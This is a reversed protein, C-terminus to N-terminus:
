KLKRLFQFTDEFNKVVVDIISEAQRPTIITRIPSVTKNGADDVSTIRIQYLSGPKFNTIIITHNQVFTDTTAVKNALIGEKVSGEEYEVISTAPEDTRWSIVMQVRDTRGPVLAGDIKLNSIQPPATDKSTKALIPKGAEISSGAESIGFVKIEYSTDPMLNEIKVNHNFTKEERVKRNIEGTKLNKHEVVSTSPQDTSWIITIADNDIDIIQPAIKPALTTFVMDNSKGTAQPLAFSKVIYHYKTNANLGILNIEHNSIKKEIQSSEATYSNIKAVNYDKEPAYSVISYAPVNTKWKITASNETIDLVRPEEIFPPLINPLISEIANEVAEQFNAARELTVLDRLSEAFYETVFAPGNFYNSNGFKDIAKIKFNYETGMKLGSLKVAHNSVFNSSGNILDYKDAEGYEIFATASENTKFGIVASFAGIDSVKIDSIAPGITDQTEGGGGGSTVYIIITDKTATTTVNQEESVATASDSNMDYSKVRYYYKTEASLGSVTAAHIRTLTNDRATTTAYNGSSATQLGYEIQSTSPEDTEWMVVVAGSTIVPTSINSITPPKTDKTTSCSYYNGSNNDTTSNSSTDTSIIKYYYKTSQSLGTLAANHQFFGGTSTAVSSIAITNPSSLNSYISYIIQSSNTAKDTNWIISASNDAVNSCSVGSIVPGNATTFSYEASQGLNNSIDTSKIKYYYVTNPTLGTLYVAHLDGPAVITAVSSSTIYSGSTIGYDVKSNSHEDTTWTIKAWNAQIESSSANSIIPPTNDTGGQGDVYDNVEYSFGSIDGDSDVIRIKYYYSTSSSVGTDVYYNIASDTITAYPSGGYNANNSASRFIQYSSFSANAANSYPYWSIFEKWDGTTINSIDKINIGAYNQSGIAPAADSSSAVNGYIDRVNFYVTEYSPSGSLTWTTSATTSTANVATYSENTLSSNALRYEINSDDTFNFTIIDNSGSSDIAISAVPPKTELIFVASTSSAISNAAENDNVSVRIQTTTSYISAGLQGAADWLASTTTATVATSTSTYNIESVAKNNLSGSNLNASNIATWGSQSNLRYEFSPTVYGPNITGSLADPDRVSYIILVKGLNVDSSVAIQSVSVGNTGFASNFEPPANVVYTITVDDVVPTIAGGSALILKYQFWRDDNNNRIPHGSAVSNNKENANDGFYSTGSCDEYGCWVASDLGASSSATKIQFKVTEATSTASETWDIKTLLNFNDFTDYKSSILEASTSFQSYNFTIDNLSPTYATDTTALYTKYKLYRSNNLSSPITEGSVTFYTGSAGDPGVYNWSSTSNGAAIQIKVACGVGTNATCSTQANTTTANFTLTSFNVKRNLDITASEFAGSSFYNSLNNTSTTGAAGSGGTAGGAVGAVGGVGGVVSITGSIIGDSDQLTIRGGGGGGGGGGSTDSTGGTGGVTSITSTGGSNSINLFSILKIKGGSGGGGGGGCNPGNGGIGGDAKIIGSNVINGNSVIKLYGGGGGGGGGNNCGSANGSGGGGGSGGTETNYTSGGGGGFSGSGGAGGFGGGGGGGYGNSVGAGGGGDGFGNIGNTTSTAGGGGFSGGSVGGGSVSGSGNSGNLNLVGAITTDGTTKIILLSTGTVNVTAGSSINFTTYNYTAGTLNCTGSVCSYAGDAGTGADFDLRINAATGAGSIITNSHVGASIIERGAGNNYLETVETATIARSWFAGEDLKGGYPNTGAHYRGIYANALTTNLTQPSGNTNVLTLQLNNKYAIVQSTQTAGAPVIVTILSWENRPIIDSSVGLAHGYFGIWFNGVSPYNVLIDFAQGAADVGYSFYYGDITTSPYVWFSITRASNGGVLLSANLAVYDDIGDFNLANNLKGTVGAAAGFITGTSTGASDAIASAGSAENMRWLSVLGTSFSFSSDTISTSTSSLSINAGASIDTSTSYQTWGSQNTPHVANNSTAGGSWTNQTFINTAAEMTKSSYFFSGGIVALILVLSLFEHFLKKHRNM